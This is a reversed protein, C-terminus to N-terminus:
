AGNGPAVAAAKQLNVVLGHDRELLTVLKRSGLCPDILYTEDPIRKIKKDEINEVVPQYAPSSRAVDLLLCQRRQNLQPHDKEVLGTRDRM